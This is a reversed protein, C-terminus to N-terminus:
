DDDVCQDDKQLPLQRSRTKLHGHRRKEKDILQNESPNRETTSPAGALPQPQETMSDKATTTKWESTNNPLKHGLKGSWGEQEYDPIIGTGKWNQSDQYEIRM